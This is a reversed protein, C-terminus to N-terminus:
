LASVDAPDHRAVSAQMTNAAVLHRWSSEADGAADLAQALAFHVYVRAENSSSPDAVLAEMAARDADSFGFTKLSSLSWWAEGLSPDLALARRNASVAEEVQGATKLLHGLGLLARPHEEEAIAQRQMAIAEDVRNLRGLLSARLLPVSAGARDLEALAEAFHGRARLLRALEVRAEDNNPDTRLYQRLLAETEAVKGAVFLKRAQQLVDIM